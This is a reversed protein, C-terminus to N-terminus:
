KQHQPVRYTRAHPPETSPKLPITHDCDRHPPLTSPEEFLDAYEMLLKQQQPPTQFGEPTELIINHMQLLFGEAGKDLLKNAEKAPVEKVTKSNKFIAVTVTQKGQITFSFSKEPVNFAVPSVLSFWDYGLILDHSPLPLVWFNHSLKLKAIQFECNPAVANSILKGGSAIAIVRPKVPLLHCKCKVAFEQSM